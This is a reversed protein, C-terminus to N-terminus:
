TKDAELRAMNERMVSGPDNIIQIVGDGPRCRACTARAALGSMTLAGPLTELKDSYWRVKEECSRCTLQLGWRHELLHDMRTDVDRPHVKFAPADTM